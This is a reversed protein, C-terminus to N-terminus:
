ENFLSDPLGRANMMERSGLEFIFSRFHRFVVLLDERTRKFLHLYIVILSKMYYTPMQPAIVAALM